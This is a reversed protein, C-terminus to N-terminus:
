HNKTVYFYPFLVVATFIRKIRRPEHMLRWFWELHIKQLYKPARPVKKGIFDIAGGVGMAIKVSPLQDLYQAIWKEQKSHGFGVFLIHPKKQQIDALVKEQIGVSVETLTTNQPTDTLIPGTHMGVINLNLYEESLNNVATDLTESDKSGLIYVRLQESSAIRCIDQMLDVGPYTHIKGRTMIEIGSGDCISLSAHQLILKFGADIRAHMLMEPNVTTIIHQGNDELLARVAQLIEEKTGIHIPIDFISQTKLNRLINQYPSPEPEGITQALM